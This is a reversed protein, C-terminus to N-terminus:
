DYLSIGKVAKRYFKFALTGILSFLIYVTSLVGAAGGIIIILLLGINM